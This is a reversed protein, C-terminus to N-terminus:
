IKRVILLFLGSAFIPLCVLQLVLSNGDVVGYFFFAAISFVILMVGAIRKSLLSILDILFLILWPACNICHRIVGIKNFGYSMWQTQLSYGIM